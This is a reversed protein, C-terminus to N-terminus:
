WDKLRRRDIPRQQLRRRLLDKQVTPEVRELADLIAEADQRDIDRPPELKKATRPKDKDGAKDKQAQAKDKDADPKGAKEQNDKDAQAKDKEAQAKDQDAQSPPAQDKNAQAKDKDAQSQAQDKQPQPQDQQGKQDKDQNAKDAQAQQQDKSDKQDKQDQQDKQDKQDKQDRPDQQDKQSQQQQQQIRLQRQALELNWKARRDDSRLALARRFADVSEKYKQTQYYTNGLNYFADAKIGADHGEAARQFEKQAEPYRGLQFLAVGRDLHGELVEPRAEVARDYAALAEAPKGAQMLRNGEELDPDRRKFLDFGTLFPFAVLCLLAATARARGSGKVAAASSAATAAAESEATSSAVVAVEAARRRERILAGALLAWFAPLLPWRGVDELERDYRSEEQSRELVGLATRLRQFGPTSGDVTFYEGGTDAALKRLGVEDVGARVERGDPDVLTGSPKGDEDYLQVLPADKTGVAVPFIKVGVKAAEAAMSAGRGGTDEGDTVLVIAQGPLKGEPRRSLEGKKAEALLDLAARLALGIDTGGVPMDAPTLGHWISSMAEYDTSPPFSMQEGAFVVLGVRDGRLHEVLDDLEIKARALRSPSVDTALMSRSLDLVVVLDVGRVDSIRTKGQQRPQAAAIILLGVAAVGFIAKWRRRVPSVTATMRQIMPLHGLRELVRRRRQGDFAYAFILLPLLLGLWLLRPSEWNAASLGVWDTM